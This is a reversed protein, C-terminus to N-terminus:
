STSLLLVKNAPSHAVRRSRRGNSGTGERGSYSMYFIHYHCLCPFLSDLYLHLWLTRLIALALIM